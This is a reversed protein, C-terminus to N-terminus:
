FIRGQALERTLRECAADFYRPDIEVGFFRRGTRICAIGTTGSGMYPDLVLGGEPVKAREMCWAMIGVPKQTPHVRTKAEANLTLDRRCYVGHGGKMWAVEADSLFSGFAHDLRKIWVLTTGVPVRASFHNVGWLVVADFGLWPAPDFPKDDNLIPKGEGTGIGSGRKAQSTIDGGSFRSNDTNLKMGYPPDSIVADAKPLDITLCDGLVVTVDASLHRVLPELRGCVAGDLETTKNNTYNMAYCAEAQGQRENM